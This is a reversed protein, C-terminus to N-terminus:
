KESAAAKLREVSGFIRKLGADEKPETLTAYINRRVSRPINRRALYVDIEQKNSIVETESFDEETDFEVITNVFGFSEADEASMWTEEDMMQKIKSTDLGTKSSYVEVAIDDLKQLLNALSSQARHDGYTASISNHIMLTAAPSMKVENGAMAVVSAASHAMGVINTTINRKSMKLMSYIGMGTFYDGGPSNINLVIDGESTNVFDSVESLSIGGWSEGVVGFMNFENPATEM